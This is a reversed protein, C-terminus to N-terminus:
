RGRWEKIAAMLQECAKPVAQQVAAPLGPRVEEPLAGTQAVIIKVQCHRHLHEIVAPGFGDDGWLTNGCGFILIAQDFRPTTM